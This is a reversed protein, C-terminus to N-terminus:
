LDTGFFFVSEQSRWDGSQRPQSELRQTEDRNSRAKLGQLHFPWTVRPPAESQGPSAHVAGEPSPDSCSPWGCSLSAGELDGWVVAINRITMCFKALSMSERIHNPNNLLGGWGDNGRFRSGLEPVSQKSEEPDHVVEKGRTQTDRQIGAKEPIVFLLTRKERLFLSLRTL